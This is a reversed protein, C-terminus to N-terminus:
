VALAEERTDVITFVADLRSIVFVSRVRQQLCCLVMHNNAKRQAQMAEVLTAVGSSDMYDIGALDLVLKSPKEQEIVQLLALRLEPAKSFDVEGALVLLRGGEIPTSEKIYDPSPM